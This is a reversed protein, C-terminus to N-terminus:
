PVRPGGGRGPPAPGPHLLGRLHAPVQRQPAEQGSGRDPGPRRGGGGPVPRDGLGGADERLRRPDQPRNLSDAMIEAETKGQARPDSKDVLGYLSKKEDDTLSQEVRALPAMVFMEAETGYTRLDFAGSFVHSFTRALGTHAQGWLHLAGGLTLPEGTKPDTLMKTLAGSGPFRAVFNGQGDVDKTFDRALLWSQGMKPLSAKRLEEVSMGLSDAVTALRADNAALSLVKGAPAFPAIDMLSSIPHSM